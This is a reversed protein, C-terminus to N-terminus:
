FIDATEAYQSKRNNFLENAKQEPNDVELLPRTGDNGRKACMSIPCYLWITLSNEKLLKRNEPCIVIGGGCSLIVNLKEICKKLITAEIDRFVEEGYIKFIESIKMGAQAEIQEDIDILDYGILKRLEEGVSSKGTAMFGILAINKKKKDIIM